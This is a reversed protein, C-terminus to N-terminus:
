KAKDTFFMYFTLYSDQFLLDVLVNTLIISYAVQSAQERTKIITSLVFGLFVSAEGYWFFVTFMIDFDCHKWMNFGFVFGSIM